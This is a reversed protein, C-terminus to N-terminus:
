GPELTWDRNWAKFIDRVFFRRRRRATRSQERVARVIYRFATMPKWAYMPEWVTRPARLRYWFYMRALGTVTFAPTSRVEPDHWRWYHPVYDSERFLERIAHAAEAATKAGARVADMEDVARDFDQQFAPFALGLARNYPARHIQDFLSKDGTEHYRLYLNANLATSLLLGVVWVRYWADWLEYDGFSTFAGSIMQDYRAFNVRFFADIEQFPEESFDGTDLAKLLRNMLLDIGSLTLNIGSSFLPDIFAAASPMLAYRPGTMRSSCFQLRGRSAIWPRVARAGEFQRAVAPFKEVFHWFEEEPDMGTEPYVNRDLILGVSCLPNVADAHNNFPIVWFWGGHFVHHLTGQSLPHKLGYDEHPAAVEDYLKVGIMHTFMGRSNTRFVEPDGRLAFKDALPSRMGAADIVFRATVTDGETTTATVQADDIDIEDIWTKQRVDAGYRLAVTLLYADTDQRFLHCDPGM